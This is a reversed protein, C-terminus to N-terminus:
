ENEIIEINHKAVACGVPHGSYTYGHAFEYESRNIREIIHSTCGVASVPFYGSSLGKAMTILDPKCKMTQHGFWEGTRGFGCIVEDCIMLIGYHRCINEIEPWYSDPPIIVGGAGQIPEGIFAAIQDAGIENIKQELQNAVAIGFDKASLKDKNAFHYPQAIHIINDLNFGVQDHMTPVGGLCAGLITSGHYSNYRSIIKTRKRQGQAQWFRYALRIASDVAESGSCSFFFHELHHDLLESLKTSLEIVPPNSTKFFSNYYNLEQMQQSATQALEKRGYGVNVCWLGAMGDLIKEGESDWLWCGDAKTIVRVADQAWLDRHNTFPHLHHAYDQRKLDQTDFNRM